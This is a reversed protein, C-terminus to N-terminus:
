HLSGTPDSTMETMERAFKKEDKREGEIELRFFIRLHIKEQQQLEIM